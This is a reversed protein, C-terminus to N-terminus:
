NKPTEENNNKTLGYDSKLNEIYEYKPKVVISGDVSIFGYLGDKMVLAWDQEYEGFPEILDFEPKVVEIGRIDIFGFLGDEMVMAWDTQYEGFSEILSYKPKVIEKGDPGIFGYYGNKVILKWDEPYKKNPNGTEDKVQGYVLTSFITFILLITINKM